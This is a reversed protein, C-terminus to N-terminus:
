PLAATQACCGGDAVDGALEDISQQRASRVRLLVLRLDIAARIAEVIAPSSALQARRKACATTSPTTLRPRPSTIM